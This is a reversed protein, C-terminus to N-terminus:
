KVAKALEARSTMGSVTELFTELSATKARLAALDDGIPNAFAPIDAYSGHFAFYAQNLKRIFYGHSSLIQRQQEMYSEAAEIRGGALMGDVTQRTQRMFATFDFAPTGSAAVPETLVPGEAPAYYRDYLRQAIEGAVMGALTENMIIIDYSAKFGMEDLLYRWGLPRFALYQHLWEEAATNLANRLGYNNNVFAPYTAIGGLETVLASVDLSDVANELADTQATNIGPKLTITKIREIRDRPSIVLLQPPEELRLNVPPFTGKVSWAGDLPNYIGAEGYTARIQAAIIEEARNELALSQGNLNDLQAQLAAADGAALGSLIIGIQQRLDGAEDILAFYRQVQAPDQAKEAQPHFLHEDIEGTLAQAEWGMLSFAFPKVISNLSADFGTQRCGSLLLILTLCIFVLRKMDTNGRVTDDVLFCLFSKGTKL